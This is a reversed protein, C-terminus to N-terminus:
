VAEFAVRMGIALSPGAWWRRQSTGSITNAQISPEWGRMPVVEHNGSELLWFLMEQQLRNKTDDSFSNGAQEVLETRRTPLYHIIQIESHVFSGGNKRPNKGGCSLTWPQGQLPTSDQPKEILTLCISAKGNDDM